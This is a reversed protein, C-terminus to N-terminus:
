PLFRIQVCSGHNPESSISLKWGFQQCIRDVISLGLGQGSSGELYPQGLRPLLHSSFGCGSDTVSLAHRSLEVRIQGTATHRTANSLLNDLLITFILSPINLQPDEILNFEIPVRSQAQHQKILSRCTPYAELRQNSASHSEERGLQLFTDILQQIQQNARRIREMAAANNPQLELIDLAGKIIATPTRLEHSAERTFHKERALFQQSRNYAQAFSRALRGVEDNGFSATEGFPNDNKLRQVRQDLRVIPSATRSGILTGICIGTLTVILCTILAVQNFRILTASDLEHDASSFVIYFSDDDTTLRARAIHLDYAEIESVGPKIHKLEDRYPQQNIKEESLLSMGSPLQDFHGNNAHFELQRQLEMALQRNFIEDETALLLGTLLLWYFLALLVSFGSFALILRRRLSNKYSHEAM